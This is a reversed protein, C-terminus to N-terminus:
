VKKPGFLQMAYPVIEKWMESEPEDIFNLRLGMLLSTYCSAVYMPDLKFLQGMKQGNKILESLKGRLKDHFQDLENFTEPFRHHHGVVYVVLLLYTSFESFIKIQNNIMNEIEQLVNEPNPNFDLIIESYADLSDIVTAHFLQEKTEFYTFVSGFSVEAKEAIMKITTGDYGHEAFLDISEDLIRKRKQIMKLRQNESIPMSIIEKFLIISRDITLLLMFCKATM